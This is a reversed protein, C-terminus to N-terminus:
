LDEFYLPPCDGIARMLGWMPNKGPLERLQQSGLTLQLSQQKVDPRLCQLSM